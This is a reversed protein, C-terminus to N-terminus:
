FFVEILKNNLIIYIVFLLYYTILLYYYYFFCKQSGTRKSKVNLVDLRNESLWIVSFTNGTFEVDRFTCYNEKMRQM